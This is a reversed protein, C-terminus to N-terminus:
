ASSHLLSHVGYASSSLLSHVRYGGSHVTSVSHVRQSVSLASWIICWQAVSLAVSLSHM